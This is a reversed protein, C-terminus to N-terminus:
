RQKELILVRDTSYIRAKETRLHVKGSMQNDDLGGHVVYSAHKLLATLRLDQLHYASCSSWLYLWCASGVNLIVCM